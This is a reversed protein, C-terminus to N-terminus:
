ARGIINRSKGETRRSTFTERISQKNLLNAEGSMSRRWYTAFNKGGKGLCIGSFNKKKQIKRGTWRTLSTGKVGVGM